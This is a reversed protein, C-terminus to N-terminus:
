LQESLPHTVSPHSLTEIERCTPLM